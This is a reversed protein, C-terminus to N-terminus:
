FRLPCRTSNNWRSNSNAGLRFGLKIGVSYYADNNTATGRKDGASFRTSGGNGSKNAMREALQAQALPMNQYFLAPDVYTTSVDDIYDTFTKRHLIELSVNVAESIFYKVGVGMPINLQTLKYPKRDPYEAFGQGETHLPALNVWDGTAPDTGQPNFHFVGVGIVGYPRLRGFVDTPDPEILATPYLELMVLGEQFKSRFNSNRLKRAEEYGGKGKIVADDGELTGFNAALRVGLWENPQYTAYLGVTLKTMSFNNDKLFSTGKGANGGLDGLFNSPGLTIGAEWFSTKEGNYQSFSSASGLLLMALVCCGKVSFHLKQKM